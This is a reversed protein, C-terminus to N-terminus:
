NVSEGEQEIQSPGLDGANRLHGLYDARSMPCEILDIFKKRPLKVQKSMEGLLRDGYDKQDHSVRTRIATKKGDVHLWLMTHHTNDKQFGKKQLASTLERPKYVAM